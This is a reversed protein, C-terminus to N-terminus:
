RKIIPLFLVRLINFEGGKKFEAKINCITKKEKTNLIIEM